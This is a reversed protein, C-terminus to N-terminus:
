VAENLDVYRFVFDNLLKSTQPNIQDYKVCIKYAKYHLKNRENPEVELINVVKGSIAAEKNEVNVRMLNIGDGLKFFKAETRSVIFALGGASIDFCDKKFLQTKKQQTHNKKFFSVRAQVDETLRLRMHKRRDVQAIMKPMRVVVDGRADSAKVQSQFLAADEPFFFNLTESGAILNGLVKEGEPRSARVIMENKFKRIVRIFVEVTVKKGGVIRWAWVPKDNLKTNNVISFIAWASNNKKLLNKGAKNM